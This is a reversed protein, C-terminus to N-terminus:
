TGIFVDTSHETKQEVINKVKMEFLSGNTQRGKGYDLDNWVSLIKLGTVIKRRNENVRKL